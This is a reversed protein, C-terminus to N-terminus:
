IDYMGQLIVYETDSTCSKGFYHHLYYADVVDNSISYSNFYDMLTDGDAFHLIQQNEPDNIDGIFLEWVGCDRSYMPDYYMCYVCPNEDDPKPQDVDALQHITEPSMHKSLSPGIDDGDLLGILNRSGKYEQYLLVMKGALVAPSKLARLSGIPDDRDLINFIIQTPKSPDM